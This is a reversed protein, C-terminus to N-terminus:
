GAKIVTALMQTFKSSAQLIADMIKSDSQAGEQASGAADKYVQAMAELYKEVWGLGSGVILGASKVIHGVSECAATAAKGTTEDVGGILSAAITVASVVAQLQEMLADLEAKMRAVDAADTSSHYSAAQFEITMDRSQYANQKIKEYAEVMNNLLDAAAFSREYLPGLIPEMLPNSAIEKQINEQLAARSQKAIDIKGGLDKVAADLAEPDAKGNTNKVLKELQGSSALVDKNVKNLENSYSSLREKSATLEANVGDVGKNKITEITQLFPTTMEAKDEIKAQDTVQVKTPAVVVAEADIKKAGTASAKTPETSENKTYSAVINDVREKVGENQAKQKASSEESSKNFAKGVEAMEDAGKIIKNTTTKRSFAKEDPIAVGDIVAQLELKAQGYVEGMKQFRKATVAFSGTSKLGLSKATLPETLAAGMKLANKTGVALPNSSGKLAEAGRAMLASVFKDLHPVDILPQGQNLKLLVGGVTTEQAKEVFPDTAKLGGLVKNFGSNVMKAVNHGESGAAVAGQGQTSLKSQGAAKAANEASVKNQAARMDEPSQQQQSVETTSPPAQAPVPVSSM